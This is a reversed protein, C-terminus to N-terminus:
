KTEDPLARRRREAVVLELPDAEVGHKARQEQLWHNLMSDCTAVIDPLAESLDRTQYPDQEMDYLAVPRFPYGKDDYTRVMLHRRTRVARQVAYTGHDWVLYERGVAPQGRLQAAFSAGDWAAPIAAGLMECLTASLDVNYLLDDCRRGPGTVGPWRVILPVRHVCEDACVHDSYIGHEGFADGHDSTIIVATDNMLGQREFEDLIIRLHHDVYRIATDYGTIMHEFDARNTVADPMLPFPSKHDTFQLSATFPGPIHQHAAIAADDPWRQTVPHGRLPDGWSPDMKYCRHADWYNVYLLYNDRAANVKLWPLVADNVEQATEGGCKLNPSHFESWGCMFWAASHRDPFNSFGITDMGARRLSRPLMENEPYPGGYPRHRIHFKAGAWINSCCGNNIGFRGSAFSMRSPLCPSNACYYRNFCLGEAAVADLTPSTPRRYGYCGLHDPRLADIDFLLVRM